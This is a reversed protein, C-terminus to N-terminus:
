CENFHNKLFTANVIATSARLVIISAVGSLSGILVIPMEYNYFIFVIIIVWSLMMISGTLAFRSPAINIEELREEPTVYLFYGVAAIVANLVYCANLLRWRFDSYEYTAFTGENMMLMWGVQFLIFLIFTIM